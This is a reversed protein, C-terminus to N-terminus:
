QEITSNNMRFMNQVSKGNNRVNKIQTCNIVYYNRCLFRRMTIIIIVNEILFKIIYRDQYRSVSYYVTCMSPENGVGNRVSM